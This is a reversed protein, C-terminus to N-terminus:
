LVLESRSDGVAEFVAVFTQDPGRRDATYEILLDQRRSLDRRGGLLRLQPYTLVVNEVLLINEIGPKKNTCKPSYELM